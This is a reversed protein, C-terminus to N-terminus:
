GVIETLILNKSPIKVSQETLFNCVHDKYLCTPSFKQGFDTLMETVIIKEGIDTLIETLINIKVAKYFINVM